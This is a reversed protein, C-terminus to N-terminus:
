ADLWGHEEGPLPGVSAPELVRVSSRADLSAAAPPAAVDGPASAPTGHGAPGPGTPPANMIQTRLIWRQLEQRDPLANPDFGSAELLTTDGLAGVRYLELATKSQDPHMVVPTMDFGVRYLEPDDTFLGKAALATLSPRFYSTTIDGWCIREMRPAISSKAFSEELLWDSWHNGTGPGDVLLRQPYDLGRAIAELSEKMYLLVNPDVRAGEMNLYQPPGLDKAWKMMFPAVSEIIDDDELARQAFELWQQQVKSAPVGPGGPGVQQQPLGADAESPYWILGNQILASEAVRQVSRTLAWYRECDRLVGQMPSKAWAPWDEDPIWLRRVQTYPLLRATGDRVSGGPIDMLLVGDAQWVATLASRVGWIARKGDTEVFQVLDGAVEGHWAHQRILERQTNTKGRYARLADAAVPQDDQVEWTDAQPDVLKEVTLDCRAATDAILGAAFRTVGLHRAFFAARQQWEQRLRRHLRAMEPSLQQAAAIRAPPASDRSRWGLRPRTGKAWGVAM